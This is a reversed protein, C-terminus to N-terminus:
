VRDPFYSRGTLPFAGGQWPFGPVGEQPRPPPLGPWSVVSMVVRRGEDAEIGLRQVRPSWMDDGAGILLNQASGKASLGRGEAPVKPRKGGEKNTGEGEGQGREGRAVLCRVKSKAGNRRGPAMDRGGDARLCLSERM